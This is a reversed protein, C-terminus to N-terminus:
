QFRRLLINFEQQTRKVKFPKMFILAFVSNLNLKIRCTIIIIHIIGSYKFM